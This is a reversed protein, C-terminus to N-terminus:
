PSRTRAILGERQGVDVSVVRDGLREVSKVARRAGGEQAARRQPTRRQQGCGGRGGLRLEAAAVRRNEVVRERELIHLVREVALDLPEAAEGALEGLLRADHAGVLARM